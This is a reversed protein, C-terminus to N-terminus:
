SGRDVIVIAPSDAKVVTDYLNNVKFSGLADVLADFKEITNLQIYWAYYPMKRWWRNTTSNEFTHGHELGRSAWAVADENETEIQAKWLLGDEIKDFYEIVRPFVKWEVLYIPHGKIYAGAIPPELTYFEEYRYSGCDEDYIARLLHFEM